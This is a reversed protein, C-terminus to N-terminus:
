QEDDGYESIGCIKCDDYLLLDYIGGKVYHCYKSGAIVSYDMYPCTEGMCRCGDYCYFTDKPIDEKSLGEYFKKDIQYKIWMEINGFFERIDLWFCSINNIIEELKEFKEVTKASRPLKRRVYDRYLSCHGLDFDYVKKIRPFIQLGKIAYYNNIKDDEYETESIYIEKPICFTNRYEAIGFHKALFYIFKRKIEYKNIMAM